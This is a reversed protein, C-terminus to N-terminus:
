KGNQGKQGHTMFGVIALLASVPAGIAGFLVLGSSGATLGFPIFLVCLVALAGFVLFALGFFERPSPDWDSPSAVVRRTLAPSAVPRVAVKLSVYHAVPRPTPKQYRIREAIPPVRVPQSPRKASVETQIPPADIEEVATQQM